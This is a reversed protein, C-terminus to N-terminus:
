GNPKAREYLIRSLILLRIAEDIYDSVPSVSGDMEVIRLTEIAKTRFYNGDSSASLAAKLLGRKCDMDSKVDSIVKNIETQKIQM